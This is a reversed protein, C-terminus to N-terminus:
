AGGIGGRAVPPALPILSSVYPRGLVPDILDCPGGGSGRRLEGAGARSDVEGLELSGFENRGRAVRRSGGGGGEFDELVPGSDATVTVEDNVGEEDVILSIWRCLDRVADDGVSLVGGGTLGRGCTEM